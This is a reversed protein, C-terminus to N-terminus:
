KYFNMEDLYAWAKDPMLARVNKREKIANRIFTSSIEVIPAKIYHVKQHTMLEPLDTAESVRPYVYLEHHEIIKEYNKWKPFSRLYIFIM